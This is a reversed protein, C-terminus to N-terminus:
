QKALSLEPATPQAQIAALERSKTLWFAAFVWIAITELVLIVVKGSGSLLSLAVVALPLVVMLTGWLRYLNRFVARLKPDDLEVLTDNSRFICVYAILLFFSVGAANHIEGVRSLPSASPDTPFLAIVVAALGAANLVWDEARSYGRYFVLFGAIACLAGVLVDRPWGLPHHYYDSISPLVHALGAGLVLVLPLAFATAALGRRLRFYSATISALIADTRDGELSRSALSPALAAGGRTEARRVDEPTLTRTAM